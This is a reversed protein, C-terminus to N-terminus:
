ARLIGKFKHWNAWAALSASSGIVLVVSAMALFSAAGWPLGYSGMTLLISQAAIGVLLPTAQLLGIALLPKLEVTRAIRVFSFAPIGIFIFMLGIYFYESGVASIRHFTIEQTSSYYFAALTLLTAPATALATLSIARATRFTTPLAGAILRGFKGAALVLLSCIAAILGNQWSESGAALCTVFACTWLLFARFLHPKVKLFGRFFEIGFFFALCFGVGAVHTSLASQAVYDIGSNQTFRHFFSENLAQVLVIQLLSGVSLWFVALRVALKQWHWWARLDADDSSTSFAHSTPPSACLKQLDQVAQEAETVLIENEPMAGPNGSVVEINDAIKTKEGHM